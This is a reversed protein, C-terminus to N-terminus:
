VAEKAIDAMISYGVFMVLAAGALALQVIPVQFETRFGPDNM